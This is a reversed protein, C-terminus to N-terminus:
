RNRYNNIANDYQQSKGNGYNNKYWAKEEKSLKSWESKKNGSNMGIGICLAVAIFIVIFLVEKDKM